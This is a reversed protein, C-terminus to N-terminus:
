ENNSDRDTKPESLEFLLLVLKTAFSLSLFLFIAISNYEYTNYIYM